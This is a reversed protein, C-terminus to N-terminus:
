KKSTKTVAKKTTKKATTKNSSDKATEKTFEKSEKSDVSDKKSVEKKTNSVIKDLNILVRSTRKKIGSARGFARARFRKLTPGEDVRIEKVFLENVPIDFNHKANAIASELLKRLPDSSRKVTFDLLTLADEAKKGRILDAVLRVKRPSQRYNKLEAKVM